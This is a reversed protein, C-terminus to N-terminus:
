RARRTIKTTDNRQGGKAGTLVQRDFEGVPGSPTSKAGADDAARVAYYYNTGSTGAAGPDTYATGATAGISDGPVIAPDTDRYIVYEDVTEPQGLTDSTVASWTLVIDGGSKHSALDTVAAPPADSSWPGVYVWQIADAIVYSKTTFFNSVTVRATDAFPFTGLYNWDQEYNQDAIVTDPGAATDIIYRADATYDGHNVWFFVAYNGTSDVPTTWTATSDGGGKAHYHKYVGYCVGASSQRWYGVSTFLSDNSDDVIYGPPFATSKGIFRRRNNPWVATERAGESAVGDVTLTYVFDDYSTNTTLHVLRHDSADRAANLTMLGSDFVYNAEDEATAQDVDDSFLVDVQTTSVPLAVSVTFPRASKWAMAPVAAPVEYPGGPGILTDKLDGYLNTASFLAQGEVSESRCIGIEAALTDDDLLYAGIGGYVHRGYKAVAHNHLRTQFTSTNDTYVMPATFDIIGDDLWGHSDQLYYIYGDNFIGWVSASLKVWPKLAAISDYAAEVVETVLGRRFTTWYGTCSDPTCGPYEREFRAVSSDDYSYTNYPYRIYDLHIGDVDYNSAIDMIVRNLHERFQPIGPSAFAYGYDFPYEMPDGSSNVMIWDPHANYIHLLSAPAFSQAWMPMANVYAHLELGRSHAEYIAVALPDYGPYQNGLLHSWPEWTSIYFADAEGRIQFLVANMNCDAINAIEDEIDSRSNWEYRSFWACRAEDAGAPAPALSLATSGALVYLFLLSISRATRKRFTMKESTMMDM